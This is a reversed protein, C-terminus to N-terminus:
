KVNPANSLEVSRRVYKELEFPVFPVPCEYVISTSCVIAVDGYAEMYPNGIMKSPDGIRARVTFDLTDFFVYITECEGVSDVFVRLGEMVSEYFLEVFTTVEEDEIPGFYIETKSM